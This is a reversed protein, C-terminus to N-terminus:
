LPRSLHLSLSRLSENRILKDITPYRWQRSRATQRGQRRVTGIAFRSKSPGTPRSHVRSSQARQGVRCFDDGTRGTARSERSYRLRDTELSVCSCRRAELNNRFRPSTRNFTVGLMSESKFYTMTVLEDYFNPPVVGGERSHFRAELSIYGGKYPVGTRRVRPVYAHLIKCIFM